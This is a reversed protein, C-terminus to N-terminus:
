NSKKKQKKTKTNKSLKQKKTIKNGGGRPPPDPRAHRNSRDHPKLGVSGPRDAEAPPKKKLDIEEQIDTKMIKLIEILTRSYDVGKPAKPSETQQKYQLKENVEFNIAKLHNFKNPIKEVTFANKLDYPIDKIQFIKGEDVKYKSSVDKFKDDKFYENKLMNLGHIWNKNYEDYNTAITLDNIFREIDKKQAEKKEQFEFERKFIEVKKKNDTEDDPKGM